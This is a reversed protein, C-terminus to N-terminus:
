VPWAGREGRHCQRIGFGPGIIHDHAHEAATNTAGIQMNAIAFEFLGLEREHEAVLYYPRDDLFTAGDIFKRNTLADANRPEPVGAAM